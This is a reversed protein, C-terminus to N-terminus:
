RDPSRSGGRGRSTSRHRSRGSERARKVGEEGVRERKGEERWSSDETRRGEREDQRTLDGAGSVSSPGGRTDV